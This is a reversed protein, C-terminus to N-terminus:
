INLSKNLENELMNIESYLGNLIEDQQKILDLWKTIDQPDCYKYAMDLCSHKFTSCTVAHDHLRIILSLLVERKIFKSEKSYEM